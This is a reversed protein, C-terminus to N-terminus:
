LLTAHDIPPELTRKVLIEASREHVDEKPCSLRALRGEEGVEQGRRREVVVQSIRFLPAAQQCIRTRKATLALCEGVTGLGM